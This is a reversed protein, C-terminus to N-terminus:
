NANVREKAAAELHAGTERNIVASISAFLPRKQPKEAGYRRINMIGRPFRAAATYVESPWFEIEPCGVRQRLKRRYNYPSIFVKPISQKTLYFRHLCGTRSTKWSERKSMRVPFIPIRVFAFNTPFLDSLAGEAGPILPQVINNFEILKIAHRIREVPTVRNPIYEGLINLV